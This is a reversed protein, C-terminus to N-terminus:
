RVIVYDAMEQDLDEGEPLIKVTLYSVNPPLQDPIGSHYDSHFSGCVFVCKANLVSRAMVADKLLQARYINMPSVPMGHMQDGIADMTALFMDHYLVSSSDIVIGSVEPESAIADLGGRAVMSALSRPVNAAIVSCGNEIAFELLPAYDSSYNPWPRSGELFVEESVQGSIYSDLLPQVDTEFMELALARDPSALSEWIFLEWDHALPDDHMEGVFVIDAEQLADIMEDATIVEEGHHISGGPLVSLALIVMFAAM